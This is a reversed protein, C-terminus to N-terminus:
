NEMEQKKTEQNLEKQVIRYIITTVVMTCVDAAAQAVQIGLLGFLRPLILIAPIFFLGQRAAALINARLPKRITQMLMNSMMIFACLPYAVLQCRLAVTGIDIVDADDRFVGVVFGALVFGVAGIVILFVTGLRM